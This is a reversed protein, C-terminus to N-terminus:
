KARKAKFKNAEEETPFKAVIRFAAVRDGDKAGVSPWLAAGLVGGDLQQPVCRIPKAGDERLM